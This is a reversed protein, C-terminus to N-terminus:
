DFNKNEGRLRDIEANLIHIRKAYDQYEDIQHVLKLTEGESRQVEILIRQYDSGM